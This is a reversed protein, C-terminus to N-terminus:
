PNKKSVHASTAAPSPLDPTTSLHDAASEIDEVRTATPDVRDPVSGDFTATLDPDADAPKDPLVAEVVVKEPSLTSQSTAVLIEKADAIASVRQMDETPLGKIRYRVTLVDGHLGVHEVRGTGDAFTLRQQLDRALDQKPDVAVAPNSPAAAAAPEATLDSAAWPVVVHALVTFFAVLFLGSWLLLRANTRLSARLM